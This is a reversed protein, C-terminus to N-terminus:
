LDYRLEAHFTRQPYPHFAWYRANNLNDIGFAASWPKAIRWTARVDTVWFRSFAGFADDNIDSNNLQGYQRGSYRSGLTLRWAEDVRWTALLNARWRPVRPQWRGVSAPNNDNRLIRSDAYTLSASLDLARWIVHEAQAALELGRTRIVDVNQITNISTSVSPDAAQSYLADKTHEAFFTARLLGEDLAHEATWESTWSREPRLTGDYGRVQYLETLTPVRVSRGLSAKLTWDDALQYAVAAKPSWAMDNRDDFRPAPPAGVATTQYAGGDTRWQEGRLGLVARWNPAFRWADQGWLSTLTSRGQYATADGSREIATRLNFRDQQLGFEVTHAPQPRWIGKAALTTWGSGDQVTTGPTSAGGSPLGTTASTVRDESYRYQSAAFEWDFVGRTHQKLTFGQAIHELSSGNPSFASTRGREAGTVADRQYNNAVRENDSRWHALTYSATLASHIDYALKLKAHEQVTRTQGTDGLIWWREGRPNFGAVAGSTSPGPDTTTTVFSLPQSRSQMRSANLWWAWPGERSGLAASLAGGGYTDRQGYLEYRQTFGQLKLHAEFRTPMRTVYDVVAGASNGPYAASFPGYLVDVREIEEPTVLGWRPTYFAGNGLLNSLLIGDAYVLSRASNGTGSARTALVAHDYDGIYRKRVLLSPLYKLADEADTANITERV